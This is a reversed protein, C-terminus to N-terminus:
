NQKRSTFSLLIITMRCLSKEQIARGLDYHICVDGFFRYLCETGEPDNHRDMTASLALRYTYNKQLTQM